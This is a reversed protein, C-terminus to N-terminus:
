VQAWTQGHWEATGVRLLAGDGQTQSGASLFLGAMSTLLPGLPGCVRLVEYFPAKVPVAVPICVAGGHGVWTGAWGACGWCRSSVTKMWLATRRRSWGPLPSSRPGVSMARAGPTCASRGPGSAVRRTLAGSWELESATPGCGVTQPLISGLSPRTLHPISPAFSGCGCERLVPTVCLQAPVPAAHPVRWFCGSAGPTRVEM